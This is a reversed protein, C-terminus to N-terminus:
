GASPEEVGDGDPEPTPGAAPDPDPETSEEPPRAPEPPKPDAPKPESPEGGPGDDRPPGPAPEPAQRPRDARQPKAAGQQRDTKAKPRTAKPRSVKPASAEAPKAARKFRLADFVLKPRPKGGEGTKDALQVVPRTTVEHVGLSMWRGRHKKQNRVKRVWGDATKIRYAAKRSSPKGAPIRVSIEYYGATPLVPKWSAYRKRKSKQTPVWYSHNAYGQGSDRWGGGFRRFASSREDLIVTTRPTPDPVPTPTPDPVPTPTPDPVPTPTPDPVPTPTPDPV